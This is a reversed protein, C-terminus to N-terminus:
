SLTAFSVEIHETTWTLFPSTEEPFREIMKIEFRCLLIINNKECM